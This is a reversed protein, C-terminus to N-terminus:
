YTACDHYDVEWICCMISWVFAHDHREDIDGRLWKLYHGVASNIYCSVSSDKQWHREGHKNADEKFYVSVDLLMTLYDVTTKESFANLCELLENTDYEQQFNAIYGIVDDQLIDKVVELPMLDFHDDLISDNVSM